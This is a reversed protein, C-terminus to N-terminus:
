QARNRHFHTTLGFMKCAHIRQLNYRLIRRYLITRNIGQKTITPQTCTNWKVGRETKGQKVRDIKFEVPSGNISTTVVWPNDEANVTPVQEDISAIFVKEQDAAILRIFQASRCVVQYHGKKRCKHCTAEHAPCQPCWHTPSRGCQSGSTTSGKRHKQWSWPLWSATLKTVWRM